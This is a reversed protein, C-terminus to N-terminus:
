VKAEGEPKDVGKAGKPKAAKSEAKEKAETVTEEKPAEKKPEEVKEEAKTEEKAKKTDAPPGEAPKKGKAKEAERAKKREEKTLMRMFIYKPLHKKTLNEDDYVYFTCNVDQMGTECVLRVPIIFKKDLKLEKALMEVAEKRTLKGALGKFLCKVERRKLLGNM